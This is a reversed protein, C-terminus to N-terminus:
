AREVGGCLEGFRGEEFTELSRSGNGGPGANECTVGNGRRLGGNGGGDIEPAECQGSGQGGRRM